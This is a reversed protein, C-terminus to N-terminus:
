GQYAPNPVQIVQELQSQGFDIQIGSINLTFDELVVDVFEENAHESIFHNIAEDTWSGNITLTGTEGADIGIPKVLSANGLPFLHEACGVNGSLSNISIDLPFSNTFEFSVSFTGTARDYEPMGVMEPPELESVETIESPIFLGLLDGQYTLLIGVLPLVVIAITVLTLILRVKEMKM